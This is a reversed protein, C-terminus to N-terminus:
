AARVESAAEDAEARLSRATLQERLEPVLRSLAAAALRPGGAALVRRLLAASAFSPSAPWAREAEAVLGDVIGLNQLVEAASNAAFRDPHDLFPVLGSSVAPGLEVLADKAAERVWWKPSALLEAIGGVSEVSGLTGLARAAQAQVYWVSDALLAGLRKAAALNGRRGLARAAAARVDAGPDDCLAELECELETSPEESSGLLHIAAERVGPRSDSLLPKVLWLPVSRPELLASIWRPSCAGAQLASLLVRTAEDGEMDAVITAAAAAVEREGGLVIRELASISLPYGARALIELEEASRWGARRRDVTDHMECEDAALLNRALAAVLEADASPDAAVRRIMRRSVRRTGPERRLGALRRDYVVRDAVVWASFLLWALFVGVISVLYPLTM